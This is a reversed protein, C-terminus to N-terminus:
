KRGKTYLYYALAAAALLLLMNSNSGSGFGLVGPAGGYGYGADAGNASAMVGALEPTTSLAGTNRASPLNVTGTFVDSGAIPAIVTSTPLTNVGHSQLWAVVNADTNDIGGSNNLPIGPPPAAAVGAILTRQYDDIRQQPIPVRGTQVWDRFAPDNWLSADDEAAHGAFGSAPYIQTRYQNALPQFLNDRAEALSDRVGDAGAGIQMALPNLDWSDFLNGTTWTWRVQGDALVTSGSATWGM